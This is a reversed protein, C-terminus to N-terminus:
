KKPSMAAAAAAARKGMEDPPVDELHTLVGWNHGFPDKFKCFRDGWFMNTPPMEAKGGAAVAQNFIKDCDEVYMMIVVPSSVTPSPAHSGMDPFDDALFLKSTGIQLEAHGIKGSPGMPMRMIEKAGLVKKYYDIAAAAGHIVLHPTITHYGEPVPKVPTKTM